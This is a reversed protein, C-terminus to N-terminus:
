QGLDGPRFEVSIEAPLVRESLTKTRDRLDALLFEAIKSKLESIEEVRYWGGLIPVWLFESGNHTKRRTKLSDAYMTDVIDIFSAIGGEIMGSRFGPGNDVLSWGDDFGPLLVFQNAEKLKYGNALMADVLDTFAAVIQDRDM